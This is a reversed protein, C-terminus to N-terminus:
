RFSEFFLVNSPLKCSFIIFLNENEMIEIDEQVWQTLLDKNKYVLPTYVDKSTEEKGIYFLKLKEYDITTNM